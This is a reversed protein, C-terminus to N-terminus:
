SRDNLNDIERSEVDMNKLQSIPFELDANKNKICKFTDIPIHSYKFDNHVKINLHYVTISWSIFKLENVENM